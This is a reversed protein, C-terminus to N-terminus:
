GVAALMFASNQPVSPVPLDVCENQSGSSTTRLLRCALPEDDNFSLGLNPGAGTFVGDYQKKPIGGFPRTFGPAAKFFEKPYFQRLGSRSFRPHQRLDVACLSAFSGVSYCGQATYVGHQHISSFWPASCEGSSHHNWRQAILLRLNTLDSLVRCHRGRIWFFPTLRNNV